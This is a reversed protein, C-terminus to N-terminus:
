ISLDQLDWIASLSQEGTRMLRGVTAGLAVTDGTECCTTVHQAARALQTMGIQEAIAILSRSSKHLGDIDNDRFLRDCQAMRVALEEMARCVVEEANHPGMEVFLAGLRDQDVHVTESPAIYTVANINMRTTEGMTEGGRSIGSQCM